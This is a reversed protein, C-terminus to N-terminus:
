LQTWLKQFKGLGTLDNLLYNQAIILNLGISRLNDIGDLSELATNRMVFLDGPLETIGELGKLNKLAASNSIEIGIGSCAFFLKTQTCFSDWFDAFWSGLFCCSLVHSKHNICTCIDFLDSYTKQPFEFM